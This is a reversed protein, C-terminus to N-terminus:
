GGYTIVYMLLHRTWRFPAHPCPTLPTRCFMSFWVLGPSTISVPVILRGWVQMPRAQWPLKKPPLRQLQYTFAQSLIGEPEEKGQGQGQGQEQQEENEEEEEEEVEEEEEEKKM